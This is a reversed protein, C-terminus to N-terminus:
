VLSITRAPELSLPVPVSRGARLQRVTPSPSSSRPPPGSSPGQPSSAPPYCAAQVHPSRAGPAHRAERYVASLLAEDAREMISALNVLLLTRRGAGAGGM